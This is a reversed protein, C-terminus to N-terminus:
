TRVQMVILDMPTETPESKCLNVSALYSSAVDDGQGNKGTAFIPISAV